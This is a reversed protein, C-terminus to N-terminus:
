TNKSSCIFSSARKMSRRGSQGGRDPRLLPYLEAPSGPPDLVACNFVLLDVEAALRTLNPLGSPDLDGSFAARGAM